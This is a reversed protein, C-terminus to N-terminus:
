RPQVILNYIGGMGRFEVGQDLWPKPPVEESRTAQIIQGDSTTGSKRHLRNDIEDVIAELAKASRGRTVALVTFAFETWIRQEAVEAVDSGPAMAEYEIWVDAGSTAGEPADLDYVALGSLAVGSIPPSTLVGFMWTAARTYASFGSM